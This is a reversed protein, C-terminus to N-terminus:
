MHAQATGYAPNQELYALPHGPATEHRLFGQGVSIEPSDEDLLTPRQQPRNPDLNVEALQAWDGNPNPHPDSRRLLDAKRAM